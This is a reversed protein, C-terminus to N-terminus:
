INTSSGVPRRALEDPFWEFGGMKWTVTGIVLLAGGYLLITQMLDKIVVARLGGLSTYTIAFFGTVLVIWPVWEEVVGIM